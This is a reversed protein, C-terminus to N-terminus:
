VWCVAYFPLRVACNIHSRQPLTRPHNSVPTDAGLQSKGLSLLLQCCCSCHRSARAGAICAAPCRPWAAHLWGGLGSSTYAMITRMDEVLTGLVGEGWVSRM